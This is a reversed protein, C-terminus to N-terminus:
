LRRIKALDQHKEGTPGMYKMRRSERQLRARLFAIRKRQWRKLKIRCSVSLLECSFIQKPEIFSLLLHAVLHQRPTLFVLNSEEDTGGMARPLIHHRHAGKFYTLPAKKILNNYHTAHDM